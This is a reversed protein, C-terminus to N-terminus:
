SNKTWITLKQEQEVSFRHRKTAHQQSRVPGQEPAGLLHLLLAHSIAQFINWWSHPFVIVQTTTSPDTLVGENVAKTFIPVGDDGGNKWGQDGMVFYNDNRCATEGADINAIYVKGQIEFQDNSCIQYSFHTTQSAV